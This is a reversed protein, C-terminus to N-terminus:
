TSSITTSGAARGVAAGARRRAARFGPRRRPEGSPLQRISRARRPEADPRHDRRGTELMRRTSERRDALLHYATLLAADGSSIEDGHVGYAMWVIAPVSEAIARAQEPTTQRPDALRLNAARIEELRALNKPGTIVLLYLGRKEITEGYKVLRTREPAADALARLYREIEAHSSIDEGLAHGVQQKLTPVKPIPTSRRCPCCGAPTM